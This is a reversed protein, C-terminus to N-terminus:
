RIDLEVTSCKVRLYPGSGMVWTQQCPNTTQVPNPPATVDESHIIDRLNLLFKPHFTRRYVCFLPSSTQPPVPIHSGARIMARQLTFALFPTLRSLVLDLLPCHSTLESSSVPPLCEVAVTSTALTSPAPGLYGDVM